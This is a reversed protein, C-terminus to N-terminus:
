AAIDFKKLKKKASETTGLQLKLLQGYIGDTKALKAPSGIEDIMGNKLTVVTDVNAITSLRHAIILTTRNKMLRDLAIQVEHEARSDLASTAEDLILIPADKLIARAIAIRQRQGGSLKIGREGIETDFGKDLDMIFDYANAARAARVIQAYSAKPNAYTINERITGSFLNADQFVTAITGRLSTATLTDIPEDNITIIGSQPTYLRMLLNSLTTKGGGSESVLALKKGPEITFSIDKVVTRDGYGFSVNDYVIRANRTTLKKGKKRPIAEPKEQMAAAYDRSNAVARQYMDVFFSMNQLPQSVQQLLTILLVLDGITIEGYAARWFLIAYVSVYVAIRLLSRLYDMLHWHWAQKKTLTVTEGIHEAFFKSERKETGFSKVLRMQGVVEAFRGRAIDLFKNKESEIEQWHKSTRMTLYLYLPIQVLVIAAIQWSYWFMVSVSVIITLLMGFLVNSFMNVFRTIDAIARELRSIIKGTNEDDYYSQPLTLLHDYYTRSLQERMRMALMDGVFGATGRLLESLAYSAALIALLLALYEINLLHKGAVVAAIEDTAFKIIFPMALGLLTAIIGAGIVVIIHKQLGRAYSFLRIIDKM